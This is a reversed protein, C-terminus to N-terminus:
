RTVVGDVGLSVMQAEAVEAQGILIDLWLALGHATGEEKLEQVAAV